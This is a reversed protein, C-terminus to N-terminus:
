RGIVVEPEEGLLESAGASGGRLKGRREGDMPMIVALPLTRGAVSIM